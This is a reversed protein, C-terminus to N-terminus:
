TESESQSDPMRKWMYCTIYPQLNNHSEVSSDNGGGTSKTTTWSRKTSSGNYTFCGGTESGKSNTRAVSHTHQPMQSTTLAVTKEGGTKEVTRFDEDDTNVGVPVQGSGWSVWSGGLYTSPNNPNITMYITGIPYMYDLIFSRLDSPIIEELDNIQSKIDNNEKIFWNSSVLYTKDNSSPTTNVIQSQTVIGDANKSVTATNNNITRTFGCYEELLRLRDKISSVEGSTLSTDDGLINNLETINNELTTIAETNEQGMNNMSNLKFTTILDGAKWLDSM